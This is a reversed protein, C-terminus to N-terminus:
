SVVSFTSEQIKPYAKRAWVCCTELYSHTYSCKLSPRWACQIVGVCRAHYVCLLPTRRDVLNVDIWYEKKSDSGSRSAAQQMTVPHVGSAVRRQSDRRRLYPQQSPSRRASFLGSVWLIDSPISWRPYKTSQPLISSSPGRGPWTIVMKCYPHSVLFYKKLIQLWSVCAISQFTHDLGVKYPM